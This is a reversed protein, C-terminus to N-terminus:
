PSPVLSSPAIRSPKTSAILWRPSSRQRRLHRLKRLSRLKGGYPMADVTVPVATPDIRCWREGFVQAGITGCTSPTHRLMGRKSPRDLRSLRASMGGRAHPPAM